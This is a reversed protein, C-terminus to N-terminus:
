VKGCLDLASVQRLTKLDFKAYIGVSTSNRHGLFDAIEGLSRGKQLLRTACAHRLSHAGRKPSAIRWRKMRKNVIASVTTPNIPTHPPRLTVFLHECSCQPRVSKIYQSLAKSLEAGIPFQQMRGRKARRVTFVRNPWDLDSLLLCVVESRRLAYIALLILIAKARVESPNPGSTNDLLRRVDNWRPGQAARKRAAMLRQVIDKNVDVALDIRKHTQGRHKM